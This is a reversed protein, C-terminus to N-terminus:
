VVIQTLLHNHFVVKIYKAEQLSNYALAGNYLSINIQVLSGEFQFIGGECLVKNGQILPEIGPYLFFRATGTFDKKRTSVGSNKSYLTDEIQIQNKACNWKRKHVPGGKNAFGEHRAEWSDSKDVHLIVSSRSGVRFSAWVDSSNHNKWTVTNHALTSREYRRRETNNYTSIGMDVILPSNNVYLEFTLNDAHSHGPIHSPGVSGLDACLTYKNTKYVRFGSQNLVVEGQTNIGLKQALELVQSPAPAVHSTSDNFNPFNDDTYSIAKLWSCAKALTTKLSQEFDPAHSVAIKESAIWSKREIFIEWVLLIRYLLIIHYMVTCEYHAGDDLFQIKLEKIFLSSYKQFRKKDKFLLSAYVLACYNELLHNGDLHYEINYELFRYQSYISEWCMKDNNGKILSQDMLFRSWSFIRLSTPYPELGSSCMGQKSMECWHHMHAIIEQPSSKSYSIWEFYNLHYTWLKGHGQWDWDITGPFKYELNLFTFQNGSAKGVKSTLAPKLFVM